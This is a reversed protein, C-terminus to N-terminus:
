CEYGNDIMMISDNYASIKVDMQIVMMIVTKDFIYTYNDGKKMINMLMLMMTLIIMLDVQMTTTIVTKVLM